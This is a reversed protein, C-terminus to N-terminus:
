RVLERYYRKVQGRYRSPPKEKMADLIDQRFEKPPRFQDAGPIKVRERQTRGSAMRPQRARKLDGQMRRLQDAAAEQQSQAEQPRVAGLKRQARDMMSQTERLGRPLRKGGLPVPLAGDDGKAKGSKGSKGGKGQKGLKRLLKEVARQLSKQRQRLRSLEQRDQPQLMSSPEPFIAELDRTLEAALAQARKTRKLSRRLRARRFSYRGEVDEAIDDKLAKLANETRQAMNLAQELDRQDLMRRLGQARKRIRDLQEQQYSALKRREIEQLKKRLKELKKLERRIFPAIKDQMLKSARRQYNRVVRRTRRALERQEAEMGRLRDMMEAFARERKSLRKSRYGSLNNELLGTLADLKKELARLAADVGRADKQSLLKQLKSLEQDLGTQALAEANLYEDPISRRLKAMRRLLTQLKRKMYEIERLIEKRLAESKTKRYRALLEKLRKKAAALQRSLIVLNQLRQEDLLNALLLADRELERVHTGNAKRLRLMARAKLSRKQRAPALERLSKAEARSLEGLRKDIGAIERLVTRSVLKDGRMRSALARVSDLLRADARHADRVKDFQAGPPPSDTQEAFLLLRGSLSHLSLEVVRQQLALVQQHREEPSFVKFTSSSSAGVKPGSVTDNDVAEIWYTVRAGPGLRVEALDWEIKATARRPRTGKPRHWLERRKAPHNGVVYVLDVRTLGFDDSAVYGLEMRQRATVEIGAPPSHMTASPRADPEIQVRHNVPDRLRRSDLAEVQFHYTGDNRVVFAGRVDRGKSVSLAVRLPGDSPEDPSGSGSGGSGGSGSGSGGNGGTDGDGDRTAARELVLTAT